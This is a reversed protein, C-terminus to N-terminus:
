LLRLQETRSAWEPVPVWTQGGRPGPVRVEVRECAIARAAGKEDRLGLSGDRERRVVVADKWREADRRRFRVKTGPTLGLAALAPDDRAIM